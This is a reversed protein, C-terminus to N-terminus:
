IVHGFELEWGLPLCESYYFFLFVPNSNICNKWCTLTFIKYGLKGTLCFYSSSCIINYKYKETMVSVHGHLIRHNKWVTFIIIKLHFITINEKKKQMFCLDQTCM